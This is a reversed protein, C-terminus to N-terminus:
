LNSLPFLFFLNSKFNWLSWHSDFGFGGAKHCMAEVFQVGKEGRLKYVHKNDIKAGFNM